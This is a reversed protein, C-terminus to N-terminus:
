LYQSMVAYLVKQEAENLDDTVNNAIFHLKFAKIAAKVNTVDYGIIRLAYTANFGAPLQVTSTDAYWKGFGKKALAEWPFKTGPDIKRTPAIDSHGIFNTTPINYQKKLSALLITLTNLQAKSFSDIGNNDIEIGISSSNVDANNGWKGAGAHWARLYDSILQHLTGDKCIVYHASVETAPKTFTQLTQECSNQATYHLIVMNPKRLGFNTTYINETPQKIDNPQLPVAKTQISKALAKVKTKYIKNSAAYPQKACANLLLIVSVSLLLRVM